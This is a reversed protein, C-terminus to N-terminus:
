FRYLSNDENFHRYEIYKSLSEKKGKSLLIGSDANRGLLVGLLIGAVVVAALQLYKDPDFRRIVPFPISNIRQMMKQVLDSPVEIKEDLLGMTQDIRDSQERCLSCERLHDSFEKESIESRIYKFLQKCSM